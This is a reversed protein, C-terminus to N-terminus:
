PERLMRTSRRERLQVFYFDNSKNFSGGLARFGLGSAFVVGGVGALKVFDRRNM